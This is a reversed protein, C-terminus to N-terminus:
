FAYKVAMQVRDDTADDQEVYGTTIHAYEAMVSIAKTINWTGNLLIIENKARMGDELDDDDPDDVSYGLVFSLVDIPEFLLQVFGGKAAIGTEKVINIGQGVGGFYTDLNEGMWVTGQVAWKPILPVYASAMVSWTDYNTHDTSVIVGDVTDDLSERGIHGSFALRTTRDTWWKGHVGINYQLTPWEADVGDDEGGGDLDQGITRAAAAKFILKTTDNLDVVQTLRVQPRRLGLLGADSLCGFNVTKPLVEIFTDWDHGARVSLGFDTAIDLWGLRLRPTYSNDSGGGYFDFEMVGSVKIRETDPGFLRLGIRSERATFHTEGDKDGDVEPLVFFPLDGTSTKQTDHAVDMKIYGYIQLRIDADKLTLEFANVMMPLSLLAAGLGLKLWKSLMNMREEM